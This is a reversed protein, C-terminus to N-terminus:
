APMGSMGIGPHAPPSVERTMTTPVGPALGRTADYQSYPPRAVKVYCRGNRLRSKCVATSGARARLMFMSTFDSCAKLGEVKM